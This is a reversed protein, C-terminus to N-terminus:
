LKQINSRAFRSRSFYYRERDIKDQYTIKYQTKVKEWTKIDYNCEVVGDLWTENILFRRQIELVSQDIEGFELATQYSVNIADVYNDYIDFMHYSMPDRKTIEKNEMKGYTLYNYFEKHMNQYYSNLIPSKIFNKELEEYFKRYPVGLVNRCYKALIQSYSTSTHFNIITWAFVYCDVLDKTTMDRTSNVFQSFEPIGDNEDITSYKFDTVSVTTINYEEVQKDALETNTIIQAPHIHIHNHQGVELLEGLGQFWSDRTEEPLGLILETYHPMDYEASLELLRKIDNSEMNKRKIVDLTKENMSQASFTIGRSAIKNILKQIHHVTENGNKAYNLGLNSIDPNNALTALKRAIEIDREKLIGFNSDTLYVTRIKPTKELWEIDYFVRDNGMKKLKSGTLGGWDCFTCSYPCGRSTEITANWYHEPNEKVITDFVGSSYPSPLTTLDMIRKSDYVPKINDINQLIEVFSYEGEKLVVSDIFDNEVLEKTVSPGGFIIKCTPWKQKIAKAANICYNINWVYASFGCLKPNDLEELLNKIPIRKFYLTKLQWADLVGPVSKAHAWLTGITYPLWYQTTGKYHLGYQPQFLYCNFKKQM